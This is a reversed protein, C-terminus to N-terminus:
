VGSVKNKSVPDRYTQLEHNTYAPQGLGLFGAPKVKWTSPNYTHEVM